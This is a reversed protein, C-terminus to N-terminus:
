PISEEPLSLDDEQGDFSGPEPPDEKPVTPLNPAPKAPSSGGKVPTLLTAPKNNVFGGEMEIVCGIWKLADKGWAMALRKASTKNVAIKKKVKECTLVYKVNKVPRGGKICTLEIAEVNLIKAKFKKGEPFDDPSVYESGYIDEYRPLPARNAM